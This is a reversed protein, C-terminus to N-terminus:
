VGDIQLQRSIDDLVQQLRELEYPKQLYRAPFELSRLLTDGYGSAFLVSLAPRTTLAARALEVGSMGPLSVDTFLLDYRGAALLPMASEADDADDVEHGFARVMECVLYRADPNDEVVLVRLPRPGAAQTPVPAEAQRCPALACLVGRVLGADDRVPTYFLDFPPHGSILQQSPFHLPQGGWAADLAAPHWRWAPPALAPVAGGPAPTTVASLAPDLEAYAQNFLMARPAGWALVSPLPSNLILDLTLLLCPSRQAPQALATASWDVADAARPPPLSNRIDLATRDHKAQM